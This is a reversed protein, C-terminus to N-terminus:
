LKDCVVDVEVGGITKLICLADKESGRMTLSFLPFGM